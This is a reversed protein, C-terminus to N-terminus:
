ERSLLKLVDAKNSCHKAVPDTNVFRVTVAASVERRTHVLFEGPEWRKGGGRYDRM